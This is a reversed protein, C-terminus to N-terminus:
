WLYAAFLAAVAQNASGRSDVVPSDKADGQLRQYRLVSGFLWNKNYYYLSGAYVRADRIGSEAKYDSLEAVTALGRNGANVGFFTDMYKKDGLTTGVGVFCDIRDTAQRWYNADFDLTYGKYESSADALLKMNFNLKNRPNSDKIDYSIFAGVDLGSKIEAMKKIVEDKVNSDRSGRVNLVPGAYLNPIDLLNFSVELGTLKVYRQSGAFTYKGFPLPVMKYDNSGIYDPVLALGVGLVTPVNIVDASAVFENAYSISHCSLIMAATAIVNKVIKM